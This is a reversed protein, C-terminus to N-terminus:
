MMWLQGEKIKDATEIVDMMWNVEADARHRLQMWCWRYDIDDTM